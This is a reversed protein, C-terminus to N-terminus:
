RLGAFGIRQAFEIVFRNGIIAAGAGGAASRNQGLCALLRLLKRALRTLRRWLRGFGCRFRCGIVPQPQAVRQPPQSSHPHHAPQHHLMKGAPIARVAANAGSSRCVVCHNRM